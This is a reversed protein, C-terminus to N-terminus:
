FKWKISYIMHKSDTMLIGYEFSNRQFLKDNESLYISVCRNFRLGNIVVPVIKQTKETIKQLHLLWM